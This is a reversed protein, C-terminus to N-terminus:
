ICVILIYMAVILLLFSGRMLCWLVYSCIMFMFGSFSTIRIVSLTFELRVQPQHAVERFISSCARLDGSTSNVTLGM